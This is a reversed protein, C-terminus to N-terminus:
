KRLAAVVKKPSSAQIITLYQGGTATAHMAGVNIKAKALQAAMRAGGGVANKAVVVVVKSVQAKFGSKRLLKSLRSSNKTVVHVAGKAGMAYGVYGELDIRAKSAIDLVKALQGAKNPVSVVLEDQISIKM